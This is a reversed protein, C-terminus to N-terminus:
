ITRKHLTSSIWSPQRLRSLQPGSLGYQPRPATEKLEMPIEPPYWKGIPLTRWFSGRSFFPSSNDMCFVTYSVSEYVSCLFNTYYTDESFTREIPEFNTFDLVDCMTRIACSWCVHKCWAHFTNECCSFHVIRWIRKQKVGRGYQKMRLEVM